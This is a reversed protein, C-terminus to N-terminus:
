REFANELARRFRILSLRFFPQFCSVVSRFKKNCLPNKSFQMSYYNFYEILTEWNCIVIKNLGTAGCYSDILCLKITLIIVLKSCM